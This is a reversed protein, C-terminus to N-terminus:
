ENVSIKYPTLVCSVRFAKIAWPWSTLPWPWPWLTVYRACFFQLIIFLEALSQEIESLNRVSKSWTVTSTGRAKLTLLDFTLTVAYCLTDAYFFEIIWARILQRLDFKTFDWLWACCKFRTRLDYPWVSYDCYSWRPSSSQTWM